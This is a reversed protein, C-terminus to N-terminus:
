FLQLQEQRRRPKWAARDVPTHLSEPLSQLFRSPPRELTRPGLSRRAAWSLYARSGARTLAVYFLRREEAEDTDGYLELPLIGDELGTLFVVPWELGKAAHFSMLAVRDGELTGHDVGRELDLADLFSPLDGEFSSALARLRRLPEPAERSSGDLGHLIAAKDVLAAPGSRSLGTRLNREGREKDGGLLNLYAERYFANGPHSLAALFRWLLDVPEKATLATEGSLVYPIGARLFAEEFAEAQANLRFLVAMDGFGLGESGEHSAVRGSDMSFSDTGGLLKEIQEVVMEAEERHTRCPSMRIPVGPGIGGELPSAKGLLAAAGQLLTRTARYSRTLSSERAGPFDGAFAPFRAAEAGRFGYIAQDPDGIATVRSGGEGALARLLEAQVPSTDQYEDVFVCPFRTGAERCVGPHDRFLRLTETELDDLDLMGLSRLRRQYARYAPHLALDEAGPPLGLVEATKLRSM